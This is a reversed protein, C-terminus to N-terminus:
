HRLLDDRRGLRGGVQGPRSVRGSIAKRLGKDFRPCNLADASYGRVRPWCDRDFRCFTPDFPEGMRLAGESDGVDVAQGFYFRSVSVEGAAFRMNGYAMAFTAPGPQLAGAPPEIGPAGSRPLPTPQMQLAPRVAAEQRVLLVLGAVFLSV